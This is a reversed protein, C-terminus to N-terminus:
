VIKIAEVKCFRECGRLRDCKQHDIVHCIGDDIYLIKQPCMDVCDGCGICLQEDIKVVEKVKEEGMQKESM